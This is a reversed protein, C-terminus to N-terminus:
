LEAFLSAKSRKPGASTSGEPAKGELKGVGPAHLDLFDFMGEWAQEAGEKVSGALGFYFDTVLGTNLAFNICHM